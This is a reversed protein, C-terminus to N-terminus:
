LVTDRHQKLWMQAKRDLWTLNSRINSAEFEALDDRLLRIFADIRGDGAPQWTSSVRCRSVRQRCRSPVDQSASAPSSVYASSNVFAQSTTRRGTPIFKGGKSVHLLVFQPIELVCTPVLNHVGKFRPRCLLTRFHSRLCRVVCFKYFDVICKDRDSWFSRGRSRLTIERQSEEDKAEEKARAKAKAKEKEMPAM